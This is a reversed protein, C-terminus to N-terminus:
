FTPPDLEDAVDLLGAAFMRAATPTLCLSVDVREDMLSILVWEGDDRRVAQVSAQYFGPADQNLDIFSM